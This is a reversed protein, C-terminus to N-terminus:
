SIDLGYWETANDRFVLKLERATASPLNDLTVSITQEYSSALLCIPWGSGWMIREYGFVRVAHSIYPQLDARNWSSWDAQTILESLKCCVKPTSQLLDIASAWEAFAKTEIPPKGAHELVIKLGPFTQAITSATSLQHSRCLFDYCFGSKEVAEFGRMVESRLFWRADGDEAQQHRVACIEPFAQYSRLTKEIHPDTLDVSGVVGRIFSFKRSLEVLYLSEATSPQAQVAVTCSVGSKTLEESLHQPGFSRHVTEPVAAMWYYKFRDVDVFHQHSDVIGFGLEHRPTM